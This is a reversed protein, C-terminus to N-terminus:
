GYRDKLHKTLKAREEAETAKKKKPKEPKSPTEKRLTSKVVPEKSISVRIKQKAEQMIRDLTIVEFEPELPIKPAPKETKTTKRKTTKRSLGAAISKSLEIEKPTLSRIDKIKGYREELIGSVGQLFMDIIKTAINDDGTYQDWLEEIQDILEEEGQLFKEHAHRAEPDPISLCEKTFHTVMQAYVSCAALPRKANKIEADCRARADELTGGPGIISLIEGASMELSSTTTTVTPTAREVPTQPVIAGGAKRIATLFNRARAQMSRRVRDIDTLPLKNLTLNIISEEILKNRVETPTGEASFEQHLMDRVSNLWDAYERSAYEEFVFHREEIPKRFEERIQRVREEPYGYEGLKGLDNQLTFGNGDSIKIQGNIYWLIANVEHPYEWLETPTVDPLHLTPKKSM